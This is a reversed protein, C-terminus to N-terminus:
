RYAKIELLDKPTYRKHDGGYPGMINIIRCFDIAMQYSACETLKGSKKYEEQLDPIISCKAYEWTNELMHDDMTSGEKKRDSKNLSTKFKQKVRLLLCLITKKSEQAIKASASKLVTTACTMVVFYAIISSYIMHATVTLDKYMMSMIACLIVRLTLFADPITGKDITVTGNQVKVTM